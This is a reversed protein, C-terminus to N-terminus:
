SADKVEQATLALAQRLPDPDLWRRVDVRSPMFDHDYLFDARNQLVDLLCDSIEPRLNMVMREPYAAQAWEEAVGVEAAVVRWAQSLNAASWTAARILAAVYRAVLDPRERLLHDSVTLIRLHDPSRQTRREAADAAAQQGAVPVADIIAAIALAHPGSAYIVDVQGRVLALIEATYLRVNERATYLSAGASGAADSLFAEDWDVDALTYDDHSLGAARAATEIGHWSVARSFDIPQGHRAPLAIRAGRLDGSSAVRSGRLALFGQFQDVGALGILRNAGATSSAWLPPVVGGERFLAPHAHTYHALRLDSDQVEGLSRV